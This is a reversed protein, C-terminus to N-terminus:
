RLAIGRAEIRYPPIGATREVVLTGVGPGMAAVTDGGMAGLVLLATSLADTDTASPAVVAAMVAGEVPVGVRPDMVHGYVHGDAEFSRGWVASVSLSEDRLPVIALIAGPEEPSVTAGPALLRPGCEPRPLAINWAETHPPAGLGYATSTGGHLLASEVGAERLVEAACDVAFGKGIAGLDLMVGPRAFRVTFESENLEVLEAGVQERARAVEDADPVRGASSLFGWCRMLPAITPDFAGETLRALQRARRLLRFVQPSVRVPEHAARANLDAIESTNRFLSLRGELREIEDLAEEGAARLAVENMGHLVIEFRTAMANRAVAVTKM